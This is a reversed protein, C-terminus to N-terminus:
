TIELNEDISAIRIYVHIGSPETAFFRGAICSVCFAPEIGPNPLDGPPPFSLGSWYGRKFFGKSLPAQRAVTWLTVFLWDHSLSQPCVNIYLKKRQLSKRTLLTRPILNRTWICLFMNIARPFMNRLQKGFTNFRNAYSRQAWTAAMGSLHSIFSGHTVSVVTTRRKPCGRRGGGLHSQSATCAARSKRAGWPPPWYRGHLAM